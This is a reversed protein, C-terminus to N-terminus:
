IVGVLLHCAGRVDIDIICLAKTQCTQRVREPRVVCSRLDARSVRERPRRGAPVESSFSPNAAPPLTVCSTREGEIPDSM